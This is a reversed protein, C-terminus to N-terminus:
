TNTNNEAPTDGSTVSSDGNVSAPQKVEEGSSCATTLVMVLALLLAVLVKSKKTM